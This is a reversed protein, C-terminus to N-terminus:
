TSFTGLFRHLSLMGAIAASQTYSGRYCKHLVGRWPHHGLCVDCVAGKRLLMAQACMLRFNHLTQVIPIRRSDAFWYISPSILPFTNHVHIIDPRFANALSELDRSTRSSWLTDRLSALGSRHGISRNDREYLEVAHGRSQLLALEADVVADEGGRQLYRNHAVLIRPKM